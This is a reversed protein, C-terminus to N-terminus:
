GTFGFVECLFKSQLDFVLRGPQCGLRSGMTQDKSHVCYVEIQEARDEQEPILRLTPSILERQEGHQGERRM